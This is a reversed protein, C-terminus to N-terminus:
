TLAEEVAISLAYIRGPQMPWRSQQNDQLKMICSPKVTIVSANDAPSTRIPPTFQITANGGSDSNVSATVLKLEVGIQFYDGVALVGNTSVPWGDTVLTSGIQNAGNVLPTGGGVGAMKYGHPSMYFRGATGRLSALFAYLIRAEADFKNTFTLTDVWIDGPLPADQIAGNLESRMTQGNPQIGWNNANPTIDPFTLISM